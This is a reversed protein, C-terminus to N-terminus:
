NDILIKLSIDLYVWEFSFQSNNILTQGTLNLPKRKVLLKLIIIQVNTKVLFM